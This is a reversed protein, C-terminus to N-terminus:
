KIIKTSFDTFIVKIAAATIASSLTIAIGYKITKGWNFKKAEECLDREELAERIAQNKELVEIRSCVGKIEEYINNFGVQMEQRVALVISGIDLETM